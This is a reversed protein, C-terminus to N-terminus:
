SFCSRMIPKGDLLAVMKNVELQYSCLLTVLDLLETRGERAVVIIVDEGVQFVPRRRAGTSLKVVGGRCSSKDPADTQILIENIQFISEPLRESAYLLAEVDVVNPTDCYRHLSPKMDKYARLLAEIELRSNIAGHRVMIEFREIAEAM